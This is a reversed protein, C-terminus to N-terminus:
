TRKLLRKPLGFGWVSTDYLLRDSFSLLLVGSNKHAAESRGWSTGKLEDIETVSAGACKMHPLWFVDALLSASSGLWVMVVYQLTPVLHGHSEAGM